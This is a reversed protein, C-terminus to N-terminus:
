LDKDFKASLVKMDSQLRLIGNNMEVFKNRFTLLLPKVTKMGSDIKTISGDWTIADKIESITERARDNMKQRPPPSFRNTKTQVLEINSDSSLDEYMIGNIEYNNNTMYVNYSVSMRGDDFNHSLQIKMGQLMQARIKMWLNVLGAYDYKKKAERYEASTQAAKLDNSLSNMRALLIDMSANESKLDKEVYPVDFNFEFEPCSNAIKMKGIIADQPKVFKLYFALLEKYRAPLALLHEKTMGWRRDQELPLDPGINQYIKGNREKVLNMTKIFEERHKEYIDILEVFDASEKHGENNFSDYKISLNGKDDGSITLRSRDSNIAMDIPKFGDNLLRTILKFLDDRQAIEYVTPKENNTYEAKPSLALTDNKMISCLDLIGWDNMRWNMDNEALTKSQAPDDAADIITLNSIQTLLVFVLVPLLTQM